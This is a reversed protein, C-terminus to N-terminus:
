ASAGTAPQFLPVALEGRPEFTVTLAMDLELSEPTAEVGVLNTLM